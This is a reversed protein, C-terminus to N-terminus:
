GGCMASFVRWCMFRAFVPLSQLGEVFGPRTKLKSAQTAGYSSNFNVFFFFHQHTALSAWCNAAGSFFHSRNKGKENRKREKSSCRLEGWSGWCVSGLVSGMRWGLLFGIGSFVLVCSLKGVWDSLWSQVCVTFWWAPGLCSVWVTWCSMEAKPLLWSKTHGVDKSFHLHAEGGPSFNKSRKLTYLKWVFFFFYYKFVLSTFAVQASDFQGSLCSWM